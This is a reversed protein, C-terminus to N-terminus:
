SRKKKKRSADGRRARFFARLEEAAEEGLVGSVVELPKDNGDKAARSRSALASAGQKPDSAGFVLRSVRANKIAGMCMLCPELTVYLTAGDLRWDGLKKTAQRIARIEAHSTPDHSTERLNYGRGVIKGDLVVVSGVPVEERAAAARAQRLAAQMWKIDDAAM